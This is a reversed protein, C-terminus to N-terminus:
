TAAFGRSLKRERVWLLLCTWSLERDGQKWIDKDEGSITSLELGIHRSDGMM